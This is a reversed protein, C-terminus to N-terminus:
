IEPDTGVWVLRITARQSLLRRAREASDVVMHNTLGNVCVLHAHDPFAMGWAVIWGDERDGVEELLAFLRPAEDAVLGAAEQAFEEASFTTVVTPETETSM